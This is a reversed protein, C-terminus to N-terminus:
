CFSTIERQNPSKREPGKDPQVMPSIGVIAVAAAAEEHIRNEGFFLRCLKGFVNRDYEGPPISLANAAASFPPFGGVGLM